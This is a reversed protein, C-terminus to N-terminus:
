AANSNGPLLLVRWETSDHFADVYARVRAAQLTAFALEPPTEFLDPLIRPDVPELAVYLHWNGIYLFSELLGTSEVEHPVQWTGRGCEAWAGPLVGIPPAESICLFVPWGDERLAALVKVQRENLTRSRKSFPNISTRLEFAALSASFREDAVSQVVEVLQEFTMPM